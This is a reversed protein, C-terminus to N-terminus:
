SMSHRTDPDAFLNKWYTGVGESLAVAFIHVVPIVVLLGVVALVGLVLSWRVWAPDQQVKRITTARLTRPKEMVAETSM